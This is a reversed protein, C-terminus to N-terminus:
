YKMCVSIRLDTALLVFSLFACHKALLTMTKQISHATKANTLLRVNRSERIFINEFVRSWATRQILEACSVLFRLTLVRNRM